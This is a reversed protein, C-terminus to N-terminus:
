KERAGERYADLRAAEWLDASMEPLPKDKKEKARKRIFDSVPFRDWFERDRYNPIPFTCGEPLVEEMKQIDDQTIGLRHPPMGSSSGATTEHDPHDISACSPEAAATATMFALLIVTFLSTKM